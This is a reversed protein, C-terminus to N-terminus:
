AVFMYSSEKHLGRHSVFGFLGTAITWRGKVQWVYKIEDPSHSLDPFQAKLPDHSSQNISYFLDM